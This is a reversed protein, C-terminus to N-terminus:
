SGGAINRWSTTSPTQYKGQGKSAPEQGDALAPPKGKGKPASWPGKGQQMVTADEAMSSWPDPMAVAPDRRKVEEEERGLAEVLEAVTENDPGVPSMLGMPRM